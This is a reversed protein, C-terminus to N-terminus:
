FFWHGLPQAQQGLKITRIIGFRELVAPDPDITEALERPSLEDGKDNALRVLEPFARALSALLLGLTRQGERLTCGISTPVAVAEAAGAGHFHGRVSFGTATATVAHTGPKCAREVLSRLHGEVREDLVTRRSRSVPAFGVHALLAPEGAMSEENQGGPGGPEVPELDTRSIAYGEDVKADVRRSMELAWSRRDCKAIPVFVSRLRAGRAGYEIRLGSGDSVPAIRWVKGKPSDPGEYILEYGQM